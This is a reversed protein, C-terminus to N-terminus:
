FIYFLETGSPDFVTIVDPKHVREIITAGDRYNEINEVKQSKEVLEIQELDSGPPTQMTSITDMTQVADQDATLHNSDLLDELANKSELDKLPKAFNNLGRQVPM